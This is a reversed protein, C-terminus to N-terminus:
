STTTGASTPAGSIYWNSGNDAVFMGYSKLAQLIARSEASCGAPIDADAMPEALAVSIGTLLLITILLLNKIATRPRFTQM